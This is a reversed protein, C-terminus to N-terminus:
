HLENKEGTLDNLTENMSITTMELGVIIKKLAM